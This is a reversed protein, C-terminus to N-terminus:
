ETVAEVLEESSLDRIEVGADKYDQTSYCPILNMRDLDRLALPIKSDKFQLSKLYFFCDTTHLSPNMLPLHNVYLLPRRFIIPISDFGSGTTVCFECHAGLFIDLFETRMGNTAYDIVRPHSSVLAEKVIVGMRFVTYGMEALTEAARVYSQIESNRYDHYSWDRSRSWGLNESNALFSSDRVNLCVFKRPSSTDLRRLFEKGKTLESNKFYLVPPTNVRLQKIDIAISKCVSNPFLVKAGDFVIRGLPANLCFLKRKWMRGLFNNSSKPTQFCYINIRKRGFRSNKQENVSSLYSIETNECFHGIRHNKVTHLKVQCFFNLVRLGAILIIAVLFLPLERKPLKTLNKLSSNVGM